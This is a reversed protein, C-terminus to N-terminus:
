RSYECVDHGHDRMIGGPSFPNGPTGPGSYPPLYQALIDGAYNMWDFHRRLIALAGTAGAIDAELLGHTVWSTVYNPNEHFSGAYSIGSPM